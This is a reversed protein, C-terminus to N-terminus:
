DAIYVIQLTTVAARVRDTPTQASSAVVAYRFANIDVRDLTPDVTATKDFNTVDGNVVALDRTASPADYPVRVFGVSLNAVGDALGAARMSVLRVGDPLEVNVAGIPQRGPFAQVAGNITADWNHNGGLSLLVPPVALRVPVPEPAEIADLAADIQAVVNSLRHLDSEIVSFRGNFGNPEGARVRDVNDVWEAHVFEPTFSIDGV